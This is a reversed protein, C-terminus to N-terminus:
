WRKAKELIYVPVDHRNFRAEEYKDKVALDIHLGKIKSGTDAAYAYGYGTVFLRSRLPIVKPDVAVLGRQLKHGLFTTDSPVTKEGVYYGTTRMKLKRCKLLDYILTPQGVKNFLTLQFFYKRIKKESLTARSIEVGDHKTIQIKKKLVDAYGKQVLVRRLNDRNRTQWRVVPTGSSIQIEITTTVRTLKVATNYGISTDPPPITFDSPGLAVRQEQLFEKVDHAKTFIRRTQGDATLRVSNSKWYYLSGGSLFLLLTLPLIIRLIYPRSEFYRKLM